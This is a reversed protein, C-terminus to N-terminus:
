CKADRPSSSGHLDILGDEKEQNPHPTRMIGRVGRILENVPFFFLVFYKFSIICITVIICSFTQVDFGM